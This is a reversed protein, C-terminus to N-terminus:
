DVKWSTKSETEKVKSRRSFYRGSMKIGKAILCIVGVFGRKQWPLPHSRSLAQSVRDLLIAIAVIGIGGVVAMGIDLQGIGRLVILGLGKVSIMSAVVVMALAQMITQNIGVLIIPMALPIQIEWLIQSANAGCDVAAEVVDSSTQRIGVDTLRILPPLAVVLTVIVGPVAGIGFLMVVPVLYVFAPLTQMADLFPRLMQELRDSKAAIIGLPIGLIICFIVATVVLSLTTMAASWIGISGLFFLAVISYTAIAWGACQWTLLGAISLFILPPIGQLFSDVRDLIFSVPFSVALLLPRFRDVIIDLTPEIWDHLPITYLEFPNLM